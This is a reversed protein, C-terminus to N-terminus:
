RRSDKDLNEAFKIYRKTQLDEQIFCWAIGGIAFIILACFIILVIAGIIMM